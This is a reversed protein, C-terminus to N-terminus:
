AALLRRCAIWLNSFEVADAVPQHEEGVWPVADQYLRVAAQDSPVSAGSQRADRSELIGPIRRVEQLPGAQAGRKAAIPWELQRDSLEERKNAGTYGADGHVVKEKAHLLKVTQAVDSENAANTTATHVLGSAADVGIHAKM